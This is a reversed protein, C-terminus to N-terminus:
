APATELALSMVGAAPVEVAAGPDFAVARTQMVERCNLSSIETTPDDALLEGKASLVTRGEIALNTTAPRDRRVNVFNLYFTDGTRSAVVDLGDPAAAVRVAREGLYARFQKMVLAVPMLFTRDPHTGMLVANVTWRTGAFDAATAIKLVDGHRQHNNLIRAYSVGAAWTRLVDNRNNGPIAFHCETMALPLGDPTQERVERIKRDNLEWARMLVEWTAAPDRRYLEGRLTPEDPDDPDFMQHFALYDLRDGAVEAMRPAWGSDGWGILRISPDATRMADAFEATKRAATELDFGRRDYSTENGIQWYTVGYPEAAGHALREPHRPANCYAVWDAAEAPGATRISGKARMFRERGDSEFNVCILPDAGVQRSFDVFEATGVQNSEIGGWLLNHMPVRGSRPGVGERWRYYDCFIGGWRMMGPALAKTAEVLDPRWRDNLHDWSAEVSSDNTGLPEMFQMYLHPSLAHTPAPDVTVTPGAAGGAAPRAARGTAPLAAGAAAGALTGLATRRTIEAASTPRSM